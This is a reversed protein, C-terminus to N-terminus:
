HASPPQPDPFHLSYTSLLVLSSFSNGMYTTGKRIGGALLVCTLLTILHEHWLALDKEDRTMKTFFGITKSADTHM